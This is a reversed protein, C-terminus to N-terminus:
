ATLEHRNFIVPLMIMQTVTGTMTNMLLMIDIDKKFKKKQQGEKVLERMMNAYNLKIDSIYNIVIRNKRQAMECLMLKYFLQKDFVKEIYEDVMLEVKQFSSLTENKLLTEIKLKMLSIREQFLTEMLKEKSGFYYSIMALNVKAAQAIDRVSTGSYGKIAFLEEAKELIHKHKDTIAM